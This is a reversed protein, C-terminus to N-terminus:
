SKGNTAVEGIRRRLDDRINNWERGDAPPGISTHEASETNPCTRGNDYRCCNRGSEKAAYLAADARGILRSADELPIAQAVGLSVTVKLRHDEFRCARRAIEANIRGAVALAAEGNAAPLIVAFEEGGYRAVLDMDRATELLTSALMRLVADGAQHGYRDNCRKFHDIDLLILSLPSETREFEALRRALEEDFARRNLLGTMADTRAEAMQSRIFHSQEELREKAASLQVQLRENSHVIQDVTKFVVTALIEPAKERAAKLEDGSATVETCHEGASSAVSGVMAQLRAASQDTSTTAPTEYSVSREKAGGSWLRLGWAVVVPAAAAAAVLAIFWTISLNVEAAM